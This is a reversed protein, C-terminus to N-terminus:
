VQAGFKRGRAQSALVQYGLGTVWLQSGSGPDCCGKPEISCKLGCFRFCCIRFLLDSVYIQFLLDSVAFRICCIQFLLDSCCIQFM